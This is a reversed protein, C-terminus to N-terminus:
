DPRWGSDRLLALLIDYRQLYVTLKNSRWSMVSGRTMDNVPYTHIIWGCPIGKRQMILGAPKNGIRKKNAVFFKEFLKFPRSNGFDTFLPCLFAQEDLHLMPKPKVAGLVIPFDPFATQFSEFTLDGGRELLANKGKRLYPSIMMKVTYEVRGNEYTHIFSPTHAMGDALKRVEEISPLADSEFLDDEETM